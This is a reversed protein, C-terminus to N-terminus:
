RTTSWSKNEITEYLANREMSRRAEISNPPLQPVCSCPYRGKENAYVVRKPKELLGPYHSCPTRAYDDANIVPYPKAHPYVRELGGSEPTRQSLPRAYHELHGGEWRVYRQKGMLAEMRIAAYSFQKEARVKEKRAQRREERDSVCYVDAM